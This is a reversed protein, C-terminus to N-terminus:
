TGTEPGVSCLDQPQFCYVVGKRGAHMYAINRLSPVQAM